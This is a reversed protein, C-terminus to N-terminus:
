VSTWSTMEMTVYFRFPLFLPTLWVRSSFLMMFVRGVLTALIECLDARTTSVAATALNKDNKFHIRNLLICFIVSM